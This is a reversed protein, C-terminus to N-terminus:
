RNGAPRTAERTPPTSRLVTGESRPRYPVPRRGRPPRPDCSPPLPRGAVRGRTAERTPPTSRLEGQCPYRDQAQTAERTPPTSRLTQEILMEIEM